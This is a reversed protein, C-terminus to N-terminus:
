TKVEAEQIKQEWQDILVSRRRQGSPAKKEIHSEENGIVSLDPNSSSKEKIIQFNKQDFVEPQDDADDLMHLNPQSSGLIRARQLRLEEEREKIEKLEEQIKSETSPLSKRLVSPPRGERRERKVVVPPLSDSYGKTHNAPYTASPSRTYTPSAYGNYNNVQCNPPSKLSSTSFARVEKGRSAIFRQMSIGRTGTPNQIFRRGSPTTANSSNISSVPSPLKKSEQRHARGNTVPSPTKAALPSSDVILGQEQTAPSWTSSKDLSRVQDQMPSSTPTISFLSDNKETPTNTHNCPQQVAPSSVRECDKDALRTVKSDTREKSITQIHGGARLAMERETQEDIEKQIRSAALMKQTNGGFNPFTASKLGTTSVPSYRQPTKWENNQSTVPPTSGREKRLAEEREKVLRIEREVPSENMTKFTPTEEENEQDTLPRVKINEKRRSAFAFGLNYHQGGHLADLSITRTVNNQSPQVVPSQRESSLYDDHSSGSCDSQSTENTLHNNEETVGFHRTKQRLHRLEEEREKFQKIEMAIKSEPTYDANSGNIKPQDVSRPSEQVISDVLTPKSSVPNHSSQKAQGLTVAQRERALTEERMKQLRIEREIISEEMKSCNTTSHTFIETKEGTALVENKLNNRQEISIRTDEPRNPVDGDTFGRDCLKHTCTISPSRLSDSSLDSSLSSDQSTDFPRESSKDSSNVEATYQVSRKFLDNDLEVFVTNKHSVDGNLQPKCALKTQNNQYRLKEKHDLNSYNINEQIQIPSTFDQHAMMMQEWYKKINQKNQLISTSDIPETVHTNDDDKIKDQCLPFTSEVQRRIKDALNKKQEKLKEFRKIREQATPPPPPKKPPIKNSSNRLTEPADKNSKAVAADDKQDNFAWQEIIKRRVIQKDIIRRREIEIEHLNIESDSDTEDPVNQPRSQQDAEKTEENEPSLELQSDNADPVNQPRSQQDTGKTEKGNEPSLKLESDNVDPVNQLRSIQDYENTEENEPSLELKSETIDLVNRPRSQQDTEKTEERTEPSLELEFDNVHSVNQPKSQQGSGEIEDGHEKGDAINEEDNIVFVMRAGVIGQSSINQNTTDNKIEIIEMDRLPNIKEKTAKLEVSLEKDFDFTNAGTNTAPLAPSKEFVFKSSICQSIVPCLCDSAESERSIFSPDQSKFDSENGKEVEDPRKGWRRISEKDGLIRKADSKAEPALNFYEYGLCNLNFARQEAKTSSGSDEFTVDLKKCSLDIHDDSEEIISNLVGQEVNSHNGREKFPLNFGEFKIKNQSETNREHWKDTQSSVGTESYIGELQKHYTVLPELVRFRGLGQLLSSLVSQDDLLVREQGTKSM